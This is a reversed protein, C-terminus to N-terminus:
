KSSPPPLLEEPRSEELPSGRILRVLDGLLFLGVLVGGVPLALYVWRLAIGTAPSTTRAATGFLPVAAWILIGIAVIGGVSALARMGRRARQPLLEILSDVVIESRRAAAAAAGVFTLWVLTYRALEEPWSISIELLYRTVVQILVILVVATLLVAGVTEVVDRVRRM